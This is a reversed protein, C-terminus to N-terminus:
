PSYTYPTGGIEVSFFDKSYKPNRVSFNETAAAKLVERKIRDQTAGEQHLKKAIEGLRFLLSIQETDDDEKQAISGDSVKQLKNEFSNIREQLEAVVRDRPDESQRM